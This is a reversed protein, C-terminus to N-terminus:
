RAKSPQVTQMGRPMMNTKEKRWNMMVQRCVVKANTSAEMKKKQAEEGHITVNINTRTKQITISRVSYSTFINKAQIKSGVATRLNKQAHGLIYHAHGLM